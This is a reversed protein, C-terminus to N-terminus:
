LHVAQEVRCGGCDLGQDIHLICHGNWDSRMPIPAYGIVRNAIGMGLSYSDDKVHSGIGFLNTELETTKSNWKGYILSYSDDKLACM